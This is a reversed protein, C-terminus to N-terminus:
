KSSHKKPRYQPWWEWQSEESVLTADDVPFPLNMGSNALLGNVNKREMEAIYTYEWKVKSSM